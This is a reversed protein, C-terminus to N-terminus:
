RSVACTSKIQSASLIEIEQDQAGEAVGLNRNHGKGLEQFREYTAKCSWRDDASKNLHLTLKWGGVNTTILQILENQQVLWVTTAEFGKEPVDIKSNFKHERRGRVQGGSSYIRELRGKIAKEAGLEFTWQLVTQGSIERGASRSRMAMTVNTDVKLGEIDSPALGQAKAGTMALFFAILTAISRM